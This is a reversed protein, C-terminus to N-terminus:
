EAETISKTPVRKWTGLRMEFDLSECTVAPQSWLTGDDCLAYFHSYHSKTGPREIIIQIIKRKMNNTYDCM